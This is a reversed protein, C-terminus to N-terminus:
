SGLERLGEGLVVLVRDVRRAPEAARKAHEGVEVLVVGRGSTGHHAGPLASSAWQEGM